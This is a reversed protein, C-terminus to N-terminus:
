DNNYDIKYDSENDEKNFDSENDEKNYDSEYDSDFQRLNLTAKKLLDDMYKELDSRKANM